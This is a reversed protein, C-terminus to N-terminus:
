SAEKLANMFIDLRSRVDYVTLGQKKFENAKRRLIEPLVHQNIYRSTTSPTNRALMYTRIAKINGDYKKILRDLNYYKEQAKLGLSDVERLRMDKIKKIGSLKLISGFVSVLPCVKSNLVKQLSNDKIGLVKRMKDLNTLSVEARLHGESEKELGNRMM